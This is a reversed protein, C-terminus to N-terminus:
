IKEFTIDDPKFGILVKYKDFNKIIIEGAYSAKYLGDKVVYAIKSEEVNHLEMPTTEKISGTYWKGLITILNSSKSYTISDPTFKLNNKVYDSFTPLNSTAQKLIKKFKSSKVYSDIYSNNLSPKKNQNANTKSLKMKQELWSSPKITIKYTTNISLNAGM